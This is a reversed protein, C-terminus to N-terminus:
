TWWGGLLPNRGRSTMITNIILHSKRRRMGLQAMLALWGSLFFLLSPPIHTPPHLSPFSVIAM